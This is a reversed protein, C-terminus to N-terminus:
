CLCDKFSFLIEIVPALRLAECEVQCGHCRISRHRRVRRGDCCLAILRCDEVLDNVLLCSYILIRDGLHIVTHVAHGVVCCRVCNNDGDRLRIILFVFQCGLDLIVAHAAEQYRIVKRRRLCCDFRRLCELVPALCVAKGEIQFGHCFSGRHRRVCRPDCCLLSRLHDKSFDFEIFGTRIHVRDGLHIVAHVTHGIIRCRM